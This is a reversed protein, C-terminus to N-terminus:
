VWGKKVRRGLRFGERRGLVEVKCFRLEDLGRKNGAGFDRIFLVGL